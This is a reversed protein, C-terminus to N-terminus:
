KIQNYAYELTEKHAWGENAQKILSQVRVAYKEKLLSDKKLIEVMMSFVKEIASYFNEQFRWDTKELAYAKKIYYLYLEFLDSDQPNAKKFDNLAQRADKLSMLEFCSFSSDIKKCTIVYFKNSNSFLKKYLFAENEKNLKKLEVLLTILQEKNLNKFDKLLPPSLLSSKYRM